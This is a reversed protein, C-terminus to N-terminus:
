NRPNACDFVINQKLKKILKQTYSFGGKKKEHNTLPDRMKNPQNHEINTPLINTLIGSQSVTKNKM